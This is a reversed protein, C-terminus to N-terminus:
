RGKVLNHQLTGFEVELRELLQWVIAFFAVSISEEHSLHSPAFSVALSDHPISVSALILALPVVIHSISSSELPIGIVIRVETEELVSFRVAFTHVCPIITFNIISFPILSQLM